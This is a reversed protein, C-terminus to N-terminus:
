ENNLADLTKIFTRDIAHAPKLEATPTAKANPIATWFAKQIEMLSSRIKQNTLEDENLSKLLSLASLFTGPKELALQALEIGADHLIKKDAPSIIYDATSLKNQALHLAIRIAPYVEAQLNNQKERTTKIEALDGTLRKEEKIPPPDFGTRHVYIRSDNSVEKLLKLAKYQYPLSKEPQYLRLYLEADWMETLAAKLKSRISQNFFTAEEADDHEHKYADTLSKTKDGAEETQDHASKAKKDEVLNHENETDHVHTYKKAIDDVSEEGNVPAADGIRTEFEEGLFEGYKLRLVKQDYGLENSTSNFEKKVLKNKDKLLKETDIIIQRQSRFYDPMLDVGLGGEISLVQSATDRLTIFFTETRTRNAVPTKNDLAEAYLYLEDGPEMGLKLLDLSRSASVSKGAIEKPSTFILKEERFKVSEGSGKSVTAIIYSDSLGYDDSLQAKVDIMLKDNVTLDVSQGMNTIAVLPHQDRIIEIKYFDSSKTRGHRNTWQIQYFSSVALTAHATFKNSSQRVSRIKDEQGALIIKADSVTDSFLISWEVNSGEQITLNANESSYNEKKAYAPPQIKITLSKISEPLETKLITPMLTPKSLRQKDRASSKNQEVILNSTYLVGIAAMLLGLSRLWRSSIKIDPMSSLFQRQIKERQLQQIKTLSVNEFAILDVSEEFNHFQNHLNAILSEAPYTWTLRKITRYALYCVAALIGIVVSITSPLVIKMLSIVVVSFSLSILVSDITKLTRARQLLRNFHYRGEDGIM